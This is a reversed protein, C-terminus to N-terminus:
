VNENESESDENAEKAAVPLKEQFIKSETLLERDQFTPM